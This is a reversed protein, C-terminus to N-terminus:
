DYEPNIRKSVKLTGGDETKLSFMVVKKNSPSIQPDIHNPFENADKKFIDLLQTISQMRQQAPSLEKVITKAQTLSIQEPNINKATKEVQGSGINRLYQAFSQMQSDAINIYMKAGAQDLEAATMYRFKIPLFRPNNQNINSVVKDFGDLLFHTEKAKSDTVVLRLLSDDNKTKSITITGDSHPYPMSLTYGRKKPVKVFAHYGEKIKEAKIPNTKLNGFFESM